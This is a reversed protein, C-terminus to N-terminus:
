VHSRLSQSRRRFELLKLIAIGPVLVLLSHPEPVAEPVVFFYASGRDSTDEFAGVVAMPGAIGIASGFHDGPSNDSAALKDGELWSAGDYYFLYAAGFVGAPDDAGILATNESLAVSIGFQQGAVADPATLKAEQFWGAGNDRFVYASGPNLGPDEDLPMGVLAANGSVAVSFGFHDNAASDSPALKSQELWSSGDHHFVYAAGSDNQPAHSLRAGIVVNDADIAVSSGFESDAAPDSASLRAEEQWSTGNFRFVYAAGANDAYGIAGIVATNESVGVSYGFQDGDTPAAATLKQQEFWSSGDYRFVYASGSSGGADDSLHAGVIATNGSIAVSVGFQDFQEADSAVLKQEEAWESGNHRVIYASGANLKGNLDDFYAGVVTTNGSTAVSYGFLDGRGTDSAALRSTELILDASGPLAPLLAALSGAGLPIWLRVRRLWRNQLRRCVSLPGAAIAM